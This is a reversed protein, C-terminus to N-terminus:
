QAKRVIHFLSANGRDESWVIEGYKNLISEWKDHPYVSLHLPAGILAGCVDDVTSIQFFVSEASEMINHIVAGVDQPPIHEMVDTCYGYPASAPIEATLDAEIFPVMAAAKDDRCNDAFDIGLVLHGAEMLAVSARGTGCGFDIIPGDPRVVELFVPVMVEGPSVTRYADIEWMLRYKESESLNAADTRWMAPLLGDGHVQVDCGMAQLERAIIQFREAHAKMPLSSRYTKGQWATDVYLMGDNMPQSYAHSADAANSSDLGFCHIKRFGMVYAVCIASNGAGFGGGVLAYGGAEKKDAPIHDELGAWNLHVLTPNSVSDVILPDVQSAFIHNAAYPDLLAINEPKADIMFQHDVFVGHRDLYASAGNLAFIEGGRSQIAQIDLLHKSLSPGGGVIIAEGKHENAMKLWPLDRESNVVINRAIDEDPTNCLLVASLTHETGTDEDRHTDLLVTDM